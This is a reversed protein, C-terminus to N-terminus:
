NSFISRGSLIIYIGFIEFDDALFDDALAFFTTAVIL